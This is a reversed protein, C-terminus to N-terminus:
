YYRVYPGSDAGFRVNRLGSVVSQRCRFNAITRGFAPSLGPAFRRRGPLWDSAGLKAEQKALAVDSNVSARYDNFIQIGVQASSGSQRCRTPKWFLGSLRPYMVGFGAPVAAGRRAPVAGVPLSFINLTPAATPRETAPATTPLSFVPLTAVATPQETAVAVISGGSHGNSRVLGILGILGVIGIIGVFCLLVLIGGVVLTRNSRRATVIPTPTVPGVIPTPTVPGVIPTPTVPGVPPPDDVRVPPPEPKPERARRAEVKAFTRDIFRIIRDIQGDFERGATVEAANLFPLRGLTEPLEDPGPMPTSELLIPVVRLGIELAREVEMRVPDTADNIRNRGGTTPGLWRPGILVLLFDTQGLAHQIKDRYDEGFEIADIDMFVSDAGYRPKLREFILRAIGASDERRYSLTVRPM